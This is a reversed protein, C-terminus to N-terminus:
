YRTAYSFNYKVEKSSELAMLKLKLDLYTYLEDFIEVKNVVSILHAVLSLYVLLKLISM